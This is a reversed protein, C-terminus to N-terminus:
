PASATHHPDCFEIEWHRRGGAKAESAPICIVDGDRLPTRDAVPEPVAAGRRRLKTSTRGLHDLWWRNGEREIRCHVRGVFRDNTSLVVDPRTEGPAARGITLETRNVQDGRLVAASEHGEPDTIRLFTTADPDPM